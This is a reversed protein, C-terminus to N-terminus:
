GADALETAEVADLGAEIFARAIASRSTGRAAALVALREQTAATILVTM